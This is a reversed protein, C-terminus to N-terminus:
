HSPLGKPGTGDLRTFKSALFILRVLPMCDERIYKTIPAIRIPFHVQKKTVVLQPHGIVGKMNERDGSREAFLLMVKLMRDLSPNNM